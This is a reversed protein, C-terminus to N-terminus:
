LFVKMVLTNVQRLQFPGEARSLGGRVPVPASDGIVQSDSTSGPAQSGRLFSTLMINTQLHLVFLTRLLGYIEIDPLM